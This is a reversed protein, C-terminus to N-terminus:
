WIDDDDEGVATDKLCWKTIEDATWKPFYEKASLNLKNKEWSHNYQLVNLYLKM